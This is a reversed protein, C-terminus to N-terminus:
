AGPRIPRGIGLRRAQSSLSELGVKRMVEAELILTAIADVIAANTSAPPLNLAALLITREDAPLGAVISTLIALTDAPLPM